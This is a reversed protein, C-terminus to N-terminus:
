RNFQNRVEKDRRMASKACKLLDVLFRIEYEDCDEFIEKAEGKFINQSALVNDCLLVDVSIGTEVNSMHAPTIDILDAVTEQTIGKKIRAIKIRQGIAKYDIEM